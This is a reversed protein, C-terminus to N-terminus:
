WTINGHTAHMENADCYCFIGKSCSERLMVLCGCVFWSCGSLFLLNVREAPRAWGPTHVHVASPMFRILAPEVMIAPTLPATMLTRLVIMVLGDPMVNM